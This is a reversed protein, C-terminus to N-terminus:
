SAPGNKIATAEGTIASRFPWWAGQATTNTLSAGVRLDVSTPRLLLLQCTSCANEGMAKDKLNLYTLWSLFPRRARHSDDFRSRSATRGKKCGFMWHWSKFKCDTAAPPMSKSFANMRERERERMRVGVCKWNAEPQAFINKWCHLQVVCQQQKWDVLRASMTLFICAKGKARHIQAFWSQRFRWLATHAQSSFLVDTKVRIGRMSM